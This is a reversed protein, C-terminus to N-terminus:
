DLLDEDDGEFEDAFDAEASAGGALRDGDNTKLLNQLSCAVGRNGNANFAYFNVSAKAYCGSYFDDVSDLHVLAGSVKQVIGPKSKNNANIFYHGAYAEDDPREEDGDRLPTKLNAPIKGNWKAKGEEKAAEVAENIAKITETDTKPILISVTYKPENGDIGHPEFVHAYSMRAENTIVKTGTRKAM